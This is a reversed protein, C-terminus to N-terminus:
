HCLDLDLIGDDLHVAVLHRADDPREDLVLQDERVELDIQLVEIEPDLVPVRGAVLHRDVRGVRGLLM